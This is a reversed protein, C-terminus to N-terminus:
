KRRATIKEYYERVQLLEFDSSKEIYKVIEKFNYEKHFTKKKVEYKKPNTEIILFRNTTRMLEDLVYERKSDEIFMLVFNCLTVDFFRNPFPIGKEIDQLVFKKLDVNLPNDTKERDLAYLKKFGLDYFLKLNRLHGAGIDGIKMELNLYKAYKKLFMFVYGSYGNKLHNLKM